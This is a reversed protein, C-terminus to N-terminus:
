RLWLYWSGLAVVFWVFIASGTAPLARMHKRKLLWTV